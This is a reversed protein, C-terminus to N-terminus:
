ITSFTITTAAPSMLELTRNYYNIRPNRRKEGLEELLSEYQEWTVDPISLHSGPSLNITKIPITVLNIVTM